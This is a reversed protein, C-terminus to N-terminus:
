DSAEARGAREIWDLIRPWLRKHALRTVLPGLHQLMPGHTGGYELVECDLSPVAQLGDLLSRPPVVQGVPNTVAIVPSRLQAIGTRKGGVELTGSMFRDDRYLQELIDEFLQGPLPFEDYTWREVRAHIALATPDLLSAALDAVRGLQFAGPAAAVSLATIVSGPVPSGAM